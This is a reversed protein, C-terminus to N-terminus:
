TRSCRLFVYDTQLRWRGAERFNPHGRLSSFYIARLRMKNRGISIVKQPSAGSKLRVIDGVKFSM